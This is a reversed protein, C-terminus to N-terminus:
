RGELPAGSVPTTWNAGQWMPGEMVQRPFGFKAGSHGRCAPIGSWTASDAGLETPPGPSAVSIPASRNGIGSPTIVRGVAGARPRRAPRRGDRYRGVPAAPR